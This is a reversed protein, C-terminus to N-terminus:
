WHPVGSLRLVPLMENMRHRVIPISQFLVQVLWLTLLFEYETLSEKMVLHQAPM